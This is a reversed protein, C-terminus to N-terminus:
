RTGQYSESFSRSLWVHKLKVILAFVGFCPIHLLGVAAYWIPAYPPSLDMFPYPWRLSVCAHIIWQCIVFAGTWLIFYSIRFFPFRLCNLIADGLILINVSHMSVDFFSLKHEKSFEFPYLVLWFVVDTLLVAGATVQYLIQLLYVMSGGLKPAVYSGQEADTNQSAMKFHCAGGRDSWCGYVSFTSALGFYVTTLLFTWQTYFFFIGPGAIVVNGTILALLLFFAFIRFALLFTPHISKLCTKWVEDKYLVGGPIVGGERREDDVKKRGEHKWILYSAFVITGFVYLASVLFRWNLWYSPETTDAAM